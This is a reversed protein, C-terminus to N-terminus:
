LVRSREYHGTDFARYPAGSVSRKGPLRHRGPAAEKRAYHAEAYLGSQLDRRRLWRGLQDAVRLKLSHEAVEQPLLHCTSVRMGHFGSVTLLRELDEQGVLAERNETLLDCFHFHKNLTLCVFRGGPKLVRRVVSLVAALEVGRELLGACLVLDVSADRVSDLRTLDDEQFTVSKVPLLGGFQRAERIYAPEDVGIGRGIHDALALLRRGDGCGLDLVTEGPSFTVHKTLYEAYCDALPPLAAPVPSDIPSSM